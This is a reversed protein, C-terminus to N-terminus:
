LMIRYKNSRGSSLKPFWEIVLPEFLQAFPKLVLDDIQDARRALNHEPLMIRYVFYILSFTASVMILSLFVLMWALPPLVQM